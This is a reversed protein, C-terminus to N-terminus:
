GNEVNDRVLAEFLKVDEMSDIDVSNEESMVYPICKDTLLSKNNQFSSVKVIYIAGNPMYTKALDQRRKFSSKEDVLGTIFGDDKLKFAKFLNHKPEIVSISSTAKAHLLKDIARDIDFSTRAPSTPQLFVIYDYEEHNLATLVHEIVPESATEDCALEVPREVVEAGLGKSIDLIESSESSVVTKNIYRSELSAKITWAILPIGEIQLINKGPLGKSGGRAPIIALFKPSSTMWVM